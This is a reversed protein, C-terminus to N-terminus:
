RATVLEREDGSPAATTGAAEDGAGEGDAEDLGLRAHLRALPAPLWWNARGLLRMTAPVLLARVVTADLAVALALGVGIVKLFTVSSTAMAALVVVLLLAASTITRGSRQLGLAIATSEDTGRRREERIRSLLFLEYDMALGLAILGILVLNAAEVHGTTTFDLAGSLHGQVFGWTVLGMTAGLSLVNMVVAKVPLVVSGLAALLLVMTVGAVFVLTWPLVRTIAAVADVGASAAGGVLVQVDPGVGPLRGADAMSRLDRVLARTADDDTDGPTTIEVHTVTAAGDGTRGVVSATGADPLAAMAAVADRLAGESVSGTLVVDVTTAAAAPFQEAFLDADQRTASSTPLDRVDTEGAVLDLAPVALLGLGATVAVVVTVPRRLVGRALRAWGGEHEDTSAPRRRGLGRVRETLSRPLRGADVRPGLWALLAPLLTLSLTVDVLVVAIGGLGMSRMFMQPFFLLGIFAIAVTLGSFAVTRGATAVTTRVAAGVDDSRRIEERFRSVMFLSYDIALGLGLITTVNLAFTSIETVAAVGRLVLMAGVIAIGGIAVPLAAATLSGFILVLLVLLIPLALLEARTIDAESRETLETYAPRQGAYHTEWPAPARLDDRVREFAAARQEDDEGALAIAAMATRGDAGILGARAADPLGPTWPSVVATVDDAPLDALVAGLQAEFAPDGPTLTPHRWLVVVDGPERGFAAELAVAAQTSEAEPDTFGGDIVEEAVGPGVIAAVAALLAAVGIVLRRRTHALRGLRSFM